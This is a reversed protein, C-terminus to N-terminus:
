SPYGHLLTMSPGSGLRRCFIGRETGNFALPEVGGEAWWEDITM